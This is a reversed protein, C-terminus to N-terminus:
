TLILASAKVQTV